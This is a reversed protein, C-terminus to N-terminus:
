GIRARRWPCRTPTPIPDRLAGDRRQEPWRVARSPSRFASPASTRCRVALDVQDVAEGLLQRRQEVDLADRLSVSLSARWRIRRRGVARHHQEVFPGARESVTAPKPSSSGRVSRSGRQTSADDASTARSRCRRSDDVVHVPIRPAGDLVRRDLASNAAGSLTPSRTMPTMASPLVVGSTTCPRRASAPSCAPAASRRRRDLVRPQELARDQRRLLALPQLRQMLGGLEGPRLELALQREGRRIWASRNGAASGVSSPSRAPRWSGARGPAAAPNSRRAAWRTMGCCLRLHEQADGVHRPLPQRGGSTILLMCAVRRASSPRM